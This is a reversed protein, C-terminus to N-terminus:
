MLESNITSPSVMIIPKGQNVWEIVDIAIDWRPFKERYRWSRVARDTIHLARSLAMQDRYRFTSCVAYFEELLGVKRDNQFPIVAVACPRGAGVTAVTM